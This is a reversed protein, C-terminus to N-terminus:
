SIERGALRRTMQVLSQEQLPALDDPITEKIGTELSVVGEYGIKRLAKTFADWDGKGTFPLWHFDGEGNNDHVHLCALHERGIQRVAVAPQVGMVLSHGTDLCVKCFPSGIQKVLKLIAEPTSTAQCRFPMNELCVFVGHRRGVECLRGFFEVNMEWAEQTHVGEDGGFPMIPHIVMKDCGLLATGLLSRSMKEFREARDEATEDRMPWRWPGHTQSITLGSDEIFKRQRKLEQEFGQDDQQFLPTETDCFRQYDLCEFGLEAIRRIGREFGYRRLYSGDETGIRM